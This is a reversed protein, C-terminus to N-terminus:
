QAPELRAELRATKVHCEDKEVRVDRARWERYGPKTLTVEYVGSREHAVGMSTFNAPIEVTEAFSGERVTLTAPGTLVAGTRADRMEVQVASRAEMTCVTGELPNGPCGALLPVAAALLALAQIRKM